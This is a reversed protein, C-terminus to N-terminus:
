LASPSIGRRSRSLIAQLVGSGRTLPFDVGDDDGSRRPTPPPRDMLMEMLVMMMVMDMDLIWRMGRTTQSQNFELYQKLTIQMNTIPLKDRNRPSTINEFQITIWIGCIWIM